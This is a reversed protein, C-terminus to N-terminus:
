YGNADPLSTNIYLEENQAESFGMVVLM